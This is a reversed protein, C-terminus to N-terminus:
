EKMNGEVRGYIEQYDLMIRGWKNKRLYMESLETCFLIITAYLLVNFSNNKLIKNDRETEMNFLKWKNKMLKCQLIVTAKMNLGLEV